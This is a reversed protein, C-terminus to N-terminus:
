CEENKLMTQTVDYTPNEIGSDFTVSDGGRPFIVKPYTGSSEETLKSHPITYGHRRKYVIFAIVGASVLLASLVVAVAVITGSNAQQSQSEGAVPPKDTEAVRASTGSGTRPTPTVHKPSTSSTMTPRPSNGTPLPSNTQFSPLTEKSNTQSSPPTESNTQSSPPTEKTVATTPTTASAPLSPSGKDFEDDDDHDVEHEEDHDYHSTFHHSSFDESSSRSSTPEAPKSTTTSEDFLPFCGGGPTEMYNDSCMCRRENHPLPICLHACSNNRCVSVARLIESSNFGSIGYLKTFNATSYPMIEGGSKHMRALSNRRWDTVYLFDGMVFLGFYHAAPEIVMTRNTQTDINYMHISNAQADAWYLVRGRVDLALGNPWSLTKLSIVITIGTGDMSASSIRPEKGWDSWYIKGETPSAVIDRPEDLSHNILTRFKSIDVISVVGIVDNGTDTYFLLQNVFDVAIGDCIAKESLKRVLETERSQLETRALVHATNDSWYVHSTLPDFDLAIPEHETALGLASIAGNRTDIQYIQKQADNVILFNDNVLESRCHYGNDDLQYGLGCHCTYYSKGHPLCLQQCKDEGEPCKSKLKPQALPDFTIIDSADGYSPHIIGRVKRMKDLRAVHIGNMEGKDTWLLLDKFLSIGYFRVNKMTFFTSKINTNLDVQGVQNLQSDAWYMIDTQYDIFLHNPQGVHEEIVLERETGDMNIKEIKAHMLYDDDGLDTWYVTGRAPHVAIGLPSFVKDNVFVRQYAGDKRAVKLVSNTSDTWFLNGSVWDLALGKVTGTGGAVIKAKAGTELPIASITNTYNSSYYLMNQAGDFTLALYGYREALFCQSTLTVNDLSMDAMNAPYQCIAEGIAYLHSPHVFHKTLNCGKNDPLLVYGEGCICKPGTLPDDVCMHACKEADCASSNGEQQSEDYMIISNPVNGLTFSVPPVHGVRNFIKLLGNSQETVFLFNKHVAIGYYSTGTDIRFVERGMGNLSASEVSYIGSDVWFIRDQSMDLALGRPHVLNSDVITRRNNGLLDCVEIRPRIGWDSFFLYGKKPYVALGHPNDLGEQVLIRYIQDQGGSKRLPAMMIWNYIGDSWYVNSSVWDVVLGLVESSTGTYVDVTETSGNLYLGQIKKNMAESWVLMQKRYDFGLAKFEWGIHPASIQKVSPMRNTVWVSPDGEIGVLRSVVLQLSPTQAWILNSEHRISFAAPLLLIWALQIMSSTQVMATVDVVCCSGTSATTTSLLTARAPRCMRPVASM